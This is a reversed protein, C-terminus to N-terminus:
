SYNEALLTFSRSWPEMGGRRQWEGGVKVELLPLKDYAFEITGNRGLRALVRAEDDRSGQLQEVVLTEGARELTRVLFIQSDEWATTEAYSVKDLDGFATHVRRPKVYRLENPTSQDLLLRSNRARVNFQEKLIVFQQLASQKDELARSRYVTSQVIVAVMATVMALLAASILVELLTFGGRRDSWWSRSGWM